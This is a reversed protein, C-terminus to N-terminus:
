FVPPNYEGLQKKLMEELENYKEVLKPNKDRAAVLLHLTKALYDQLVDDMNELNKLTDIHQGIVHMSAREAPGSLAGPMGVTKVNSITAEIIPISLDFFNIDRIGARSFLRNATYLNDILFNSLYVGIIHYLAKYATQIRFPHIGLTVCIEYLERYVADNGSEIAAASNMLPVAIKTPFSMMFHVSATEGGAAALPALLAVTQSGSLHLFVKGKLDVGSVAIELAVAEIDEDPVALICHTFQAKLLHFAEVFIGIGYRLAFQQATEQKRSVIGCPKIGAQCLAEALSNAIRGTGVFVIKPLAQLM